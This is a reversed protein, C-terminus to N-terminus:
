YYDNRREFPLLLTILLGGLFGGAHGQWSVGPMFSIIINPILMRAIQSLELSDLRNDNKYLYVTYAGFTGWVVGSLGVTYVDRGLFTVLLGSGLLSGILIQAYNKTGYIREIFGGVNFFAGLNGLIHYYSGHMLAGTLLRYVQGQMVLSPVIAFQQYDIVGLMQLVFIVICIVSVITTLM